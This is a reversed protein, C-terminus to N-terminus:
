NHSLTRGENNCRVYLQKRQLRIPQQKNSHTPNASIKAHCPKAMNQLSNRLSKRTQLKRLKKEDGKNKYIHVVAGNKWTKPLQQGNKIHNLM